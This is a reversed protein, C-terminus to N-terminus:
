LTHRRRVVPDDSEEFTSGCVGCVFRVTAPEPTIGMLLMVQGMVTYTAEVTVRPAGQEHVCTKAPQDTPEAM